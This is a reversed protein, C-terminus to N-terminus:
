AFLVGGGRLDLLLLVPLNIHCDLSAQRKNWSFFATLPTEVKGMQMGAEM